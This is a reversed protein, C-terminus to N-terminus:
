HINHGKSACLFVPRASKNNYRRRTGGKGERALSWASKAQEVPEDHGHVMHGVFQERGELLIECRSCWVCPASDDCPAGDSM